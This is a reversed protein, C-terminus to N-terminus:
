LAAPLVLLIQQRELATELRNSTIGGSVLRIDDGSVLRIDDMGM